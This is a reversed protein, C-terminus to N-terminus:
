RADPGPGTGTGPGTSPGRTEDADDLPELDDLHAADRERRLRLAIAVVLGIAVLPVIASTYGFLALGVLAAVAIGVVAIREPRRAPDATPLVAIAALGAAIPTTLFIPLTLAAPVLALPTAILELAVIIPRILLLAIALALLWPPQAGRGVLALAALLLPVLGLLALANAALVIILLTQPDTSAFAGTAALLSLGWGAVGTLALAVVALVLGRALPVPQALADLLRPM